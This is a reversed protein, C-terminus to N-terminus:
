RPLKGERYAELVWRLSTRTDSPVDDVLYRGDIEVFYQGAIRTAGERLDWILLRHRGIAIEALLRNQPLFYQAFVRKFEDEGVSERYDRLVEFRRRPANSLLAAEEIDGASLHVNLLKAADLATTPALEGKRRAVHADAPYTRLTYSVSGGGSLELTRAEETQAYLLTVSFFGAVLAAFLIPSQGRNRRMMM